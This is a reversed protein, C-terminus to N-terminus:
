TLAGQSAFTPGTQMAQRPMPGPQGQATPQQGRGMDKDVKDIIAQLGKQGIHRMVRLPLIGEGPQVMAPVKDPGKIGPVAASQPVVSGTQIAQPMGPRAMGGRAYIAGIGSLADSGGAGLFDSAGGAAGAAAGGGGGGGIMNMIGGFGGGSGGGVGPLASEWEDGIKESHGGIADEATGGLAKGLRSGIMGGVPGGIISGGITGIIQGITGGIGYKGVEGGRNLGTSYDYYQGGPSFDGTTYDGGPGSGVPGSPTAFDQPTYAGGPGSGQPGTPSTGGSKDWEFKFMPNKKGGQTSKMGKAFGSESEPEIDEPTGYFDHAMFRRYTSGGGAYGPVVGGKAIKFPEFSFMNSAAGLGAGAIAGFGSGQNYAQQNAALNTRSIDNWLAGQQNEVNMADIYAKPWQALETSALQGWGQPAGMGAQRSAETALNANIAQNKQATGVGAFGQTVGADAQGQGIGTGLMQQGILRNNIDSSTGAAAQAAARNTRIGSDLRSAITGPDLGASRLSRAASDAQADFAQGVGSVAQGRMLALNQPSAWDRATDLYQKMAPAYQEEYRSVGAKAANDFMDASGMAGSSILDATHQNKNYSDLAMQYSQQGQDYFRNAWAKANDVYANPDYSFNSISGTMYPNAAPGGQGTTGGTDFATVKPPSSVVGGEAHYYMEPSPM